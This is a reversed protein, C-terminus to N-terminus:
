PYNCSNVCAGDFGDTSSMSERNIQPTKEASGNRADHGSCTNVREVEQLTACRESLCITAAPSGQCWFPYETVTALDLLVARAILAIQLFLNILAGVLLPEVLPVESIVRPRAFVFNDGTGAAM